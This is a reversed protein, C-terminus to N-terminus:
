NLSAMSAMSKAEFERSYNNYLKKWRSILAQMEIPKLTEYALYKDCKVFKRFGAEVLFRHSKPNIYAEYLRRHINSELYGNKNMWKLQLRFRLDEGSYVVGTETDASEIGTFDMRYIAVAIAYYRLMKLQNKSAIKKESETVKGFEVPPEQGATVYLEAICAVLENWTLEKYNKDFLRFTTEDRLAKVADGDEKFGDKILEKAALYLQKHLQKVSTSYVAM